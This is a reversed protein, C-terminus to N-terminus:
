PLLGLPPLHLLIEAVRFDAADPFVKPVEGLIGFCGLGCLHLELVLHTKHDSVENPQSLNPQM